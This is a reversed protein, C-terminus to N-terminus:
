LRLAHLFDLFFINSSIHNHAQTDVMSNTIFHIAQLYPILRALLPFFYNRYKNLPYFLTVTQLYTTSIIVVSLLPTGLDHLRYFYPQQIHMNNDSKRFCFLSIYSSIGETFQCPQAIYLRFQIKSQYVTRVLDSALSHNLSLKFVQNCMSYSQHFM